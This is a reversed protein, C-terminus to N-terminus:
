GTAITHLRIAETIQAREEEAPMDKHQIWKYGHSAIEWGAEQMALLQQPACLWQLPALFRSPGRIRVYIRRQRPAPQALTCRRDRRRPLGRLCRRWAPHQERRGRRLQPSVPGRCLRGRAM